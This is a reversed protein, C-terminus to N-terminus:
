KLHVSNSCNQCTIIIDSSFDNTGNILIEQLNLNEKLKVKTSCKNCELTFKIESM